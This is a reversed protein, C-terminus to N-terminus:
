SGQNIQSVKLNLKQCHQALSDEWEDPYNMMLFEELEERVWKRVELQRKDKINIEATERIISVQTKFTNLVYAVIM